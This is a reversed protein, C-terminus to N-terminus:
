ALQRLQAESPFARVRFRPPYFDPEQEMLDAVVAVAKDWDAVVVDADGEDKPVVFAIRDAKPLSTDVDRTWTALSFQRGSGDNEEFVRYSAVFIDAQNAAHIKELLEKQLSYAPADLMRQLHAQRRRHEPQPLAFPVIRRADDYAFALSSICRGHAAAELSLELMGAMATEDRDGVVLLCDRTPLMFVPRGKVPVRQLVDPLVVRSSDYADQWGGQFIGAAVEVFREPTADRLNDHAIALAQEFTIGWADKPGQTLTSTSDPRDIALLEVCDEAIERWVVAFPADWGHERVHELRIEELMGRHRIVPMLTPRVQEFTRTEHDENQGEVFAAAYSRLVEARGRRDATTYAHYANHLNIIRGRQDAFRFEDPLYTLADRYGRARLADLFLKAFADPSPKRNFLKDFLVTLM